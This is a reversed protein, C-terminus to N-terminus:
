LLLMFICSVQIAGQRDQIAGQRDQITGQRDSNGDYTVLVNVREAKWRQTESTFDETDSNPYTWQQLRPQWEFIFFLIAFLISGSSILWRM